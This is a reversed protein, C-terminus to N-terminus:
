ARRYINGTSLRWWASTFVLFVAVVELRGAYMDFTLLARAVPHLDAFTLMPGVPALGPGINGLCAISAPLQM